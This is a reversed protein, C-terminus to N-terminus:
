DQRHRAALPRHHNTRARGRRHDTVRPGPRAPGEFRQYRPLHQGAPARITTDCGPPFGGGSTAAMPRHDPQPRWSSSSDCASRTIQPRRAWPMTTWSAAPRRAAPPPAQRRRDTPSRWIANTRWPLARSQHSGNAVSDNTAATLRRTQRRGPVTLRGLALRRCCRRRRLDPVPHAMFRERRRPLNPTPHPQRFNWSSTSPWNRTPKAPADISTSWTEPPVRHVFGRGLAMSSPTSGRPRTPPASHASKSTGRAVLPSARAASAWCWRRRGPALRGFNYYAAAVRGEPSCWARASRRKEPHALPASVGQVGWPKIVGKLVRPRVSM